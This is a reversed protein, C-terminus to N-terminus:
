LYLGEKKIYKIIEITTLHGINRKNKINERIITSSINSQILGAVQIINEKYSKMIPNDDLVKWLRDEGRDIAIIKYNTLLRKWDKWNLVDRLNDSGMVFCLDDGPYKEKLKDLTEITYLKRETDIEMTDVLLRRNKNCALKLMNVRHYAPILGKKNYHDGVPVFLLKKAGTSILLQNALTIHALSPPNFSGGYIIISNNNM